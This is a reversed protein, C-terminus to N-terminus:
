GNEGLYKVGSKTDIRVRSWEDRLIFVPLHQLDISEQHVNRITTLIEVSRAARNYHHYM